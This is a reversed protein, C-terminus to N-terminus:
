KKSKIVIVSLIGLCIVIASSIGIWLMTKNSANIVSDIIDVDSSDLIVTLEYRDSLFIIQGADKRFAFLEVIYEGTNLSQELIYDIQNLSTERTISEISAERHMEIPVGDKFLEVGIYLEDSELHLNMIEYNFRLLMQRDEQILQVNAYDIFVSAVIVNNNINKNPFVTFDYRLIEYGLDESVITYDGPDLRTSLVGNDARKVFSLGLHQRFLTIPSDILRGNSDVLRLYVNDEETVILSAQFPIEHNISDEIRRYSVILYVNYIGSPADPSVSFDIPTNIESFEPIMLQDSKEIIIGQSGTISVEVIYVDETNNILSLSTEGQSHDGPSLRFQHNHFTNNIVLQQNAQTILFTHSLILMFIFVGLAYFRVKNHKM